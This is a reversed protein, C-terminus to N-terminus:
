FSLKFPRSSGVGPLSAPVFGIVPAPLAAQLETIGSLAPERWARFAAVALYVALAVGAFAASILISADGQSAASRAPLTAPYVDIPLDEGRANMAVRQRAQAEQVDQRLREAAAEAVQLEAPPVPEVKGVDKPQAGEMRPRAQSSVTAEATLRPPIVSMERRVDVIQTELEQVAPHLPTRDVLLADRRKELDSLRRFLETWRPNEITVSAPNLSTGARDGAQAQQREWQRQRERLREVQRESEQALREAKRVAEQATSYAQELQLKWQSRCAQSYAAAVVEALPGLSDAPLGGLSISVVTDPGVQRAEMSLGDRVAPKAQLRTQQWPPDYAFNPSHICVTTTARPAAAPQRARSDLYQWVFVAAAVVFLVLMYTWDLLRLRPRQRVTTSSKSGFIPMM